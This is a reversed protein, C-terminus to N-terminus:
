DEHGAESKGLEAKLLFAGKGAVREAGTLGRLIETSGAATRGPTVPRARFGGPEVVFVVPRGEVTQVAESPVIITGGADAGTTVRASVVSGVPATRGSPTARVIATNAGSAGPAVASITAPAQQGDPTQVQIVQGLRISGAAAAPADFVYEAHSPDAIEAVLAGQALFGGVQTDLRTVVGNIPSRLVTVGDAGPGGMARIQAQAARQDAQAKEAAAQSAEWDQRSVVGAEFLRRDRSAAAQAAKADASAADLSARGSAADASRLTVIPSGAAVAAGATVHIREVAGSVPAGLAALANAALTVRGPLLIDGGGGRGPTVISVGAAAADAPKLPVLGADGHAPHAEGEPEPAPSIAPGGQLWHAAGYGLGAAAMVAIAPVILSRRAIM